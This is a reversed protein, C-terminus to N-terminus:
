ILYYRQTPVKLVNTRKFLRHHIDFSAPCVLSQVKGRGSGQCGDTNGFTSASEATRSSRPRLQPRHALGREGDKEEKERAQATLDEQEEASSKIEFHKIPWTPPTHSSRFNARSIWLIYIYSNLYELLCVMTYLHAVDNSTPLLDWLEWMECLFCLLVCHILIYGHMSNRHICRELTLNRHLLYFKYLPAPM